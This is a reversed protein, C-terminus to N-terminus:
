IKKKSSPTIRFITGRQEHHAADCSKSISINSMYECYKTKQETAGKEM